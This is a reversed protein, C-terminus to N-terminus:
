LQRPLRPPWQAWCPALDLHQDHSHLAPSLLPCLQASTWARTTVPSLPRRMSPCTDGNTFHRHPCTGERLKPNTHSSLSMTSTFVCQDEQGQLVFCPRDIKCIFFSLSLHQLGELSGGSIEAGLQGLTYICGIFCLFPLSCRATLPGLALGSAKPWPNFIFIYEALFPCTPM